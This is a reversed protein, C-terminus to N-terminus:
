RDAALQEAIRERTLQELALEEVLQGLAMGRREANQALHDCAQRSVQITTNANETM